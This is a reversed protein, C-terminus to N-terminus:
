RSMAYGTIEFGSRQQAVARPASWHSLSRALAYGTIEFGSRTTLTALPRTWAFM